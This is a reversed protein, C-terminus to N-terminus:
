DCFSFSSKQYVLEITNYQSNNSSTLNAALHALVGGLKTRM